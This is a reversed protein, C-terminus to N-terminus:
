WFNNFNISFQRLESLFFKACNKRLCRTYRLRPLTYPTLLAHLYTPTSTSLTKYTLSALKFRMLSKEEAAPTRSSSNQYPLIKFQQCLPFGSFKFAKNYKIFYKWTLKSSFLFSSLTMAM